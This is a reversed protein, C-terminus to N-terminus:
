SFVCARASFLYGGVGQCSVSSLDASERDSGPSCRYRVHTDTGRVPGPGGMPPQGRPHGGVAAPPSPTSRSSGSTPTRVGLPYAQLVEFLQVDANGSFRRGGQIQEISTGGFVAFWALSVLSPVLIVGGVFQRIRRGRSIRALFIGVFPTWSIWWAWYFVTWNSLWEAMPEGGVAETRGVMEFFDSAYAGISTPILDLIIVTPGVVFVFVALLTALVM